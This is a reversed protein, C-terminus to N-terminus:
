LGLQCAMEDLLGYMEAIKVSQSRFEGTLFTLGGAVTDVTAQNNGRCQLIIETLPLFAVATDKTPFMLKQMELLFLRNINLNRLLAKTAPDSLIENLESQNIRGDGDDHQQFRHILQQKMMAVVRAEDQERKTDAIVECLVGILMQLITLATLLTFLLFTWGAIIIVPKDSEVLHTAINAAGDLMFVGCMGLTWMCHPITAFDFQLDERLKTNLEDEEKLLMNILIAFTYIFLMVLLVSGFIARVSRVMGKVMTVLEPFTKMMRAMRTMKLLRLLRLAGVPVNISGGVVKLIPMLIWTEVLMSGVLFADFRM